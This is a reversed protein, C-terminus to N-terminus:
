CTVTAPRQSSVQSVAQPSDTGPAESEQAALATPLGVLVLVLSWRLYMYATWNLVGSAVVRSGACRTSNGNIQSRERISPRTPSRVLGGDNRLAEPPSVVFFRPKMARKIFTEPIGANGAPPQLPV